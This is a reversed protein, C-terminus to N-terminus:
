QANKDEPKRRRAVSGLAGLGLLMMAYTAPEPLAAVTYGFTFTAFELDCGCM